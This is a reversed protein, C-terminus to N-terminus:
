ILGYIHKTRRIENESCNDRERKEEKGFEGDLWKFYRERSALGLIGDSSEAVKGGAGVKM